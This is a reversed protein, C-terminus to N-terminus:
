LWPHYNIISNKFELLINSHSSTNKDDFIEALNVTTGTTIPSSLRPQVTNYDSLIIGLAGNVFNKITLIDGTYKTFILTNESLTYIGDDGRYSNDNFAFRNYIKNGGTLLNKEFVIIGNGDSDNIYDQNNTIYVDYGRGGALYDGHQDDNGNIDNGFIIDDGKGGYIFDTGNEGYLIDDGREGFILDNKPTDKLTDNGEDIDSFEEGVDGIGEGIIIEGDLEIAHINNTTLHNHSSCGSFILVIAVGLATLLQKICYIM